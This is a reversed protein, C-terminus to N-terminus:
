KYGWLLSQAGLSLFLTMSRSLSFTPYTTQVLIFWTDNLALGCGIVVYSLVEWMRRVYFTNHVGVMMKYGIAHAVLSLRMRVREGESTLGDGEDIFPFTSEGM